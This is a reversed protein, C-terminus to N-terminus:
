LSSVAMFGWAFAGDHKACWTAFGSILRPLIWQRGKAPRPVTACVTTRRAFTRAARRSGARSAHERRESPTTTRRRTSGRTGRFAAPARVRMRTARPSTTQPRWEWVNGTADYLGYGNPPFAKVPSTGEYRDTELNKWPFRGQWTNAMMKGKPASEDGLRLHRGGTRRACRVGM